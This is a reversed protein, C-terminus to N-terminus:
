MQSVIKKSLGLLACFCCGFVDWLLRAPPKSCTITGKVKPFSGIQSINKLHTTWGGGSAERRKRRHAPPTTNSWPGWSNSALDSWRYCRPTKIVQSAPTTQLLNSLCSKYFSIHHINNINYIYIIYVCSIYLIHINPIYSPFNQDSTLSPILIYPSSSQNRQPFGKSTIVRSLKRPLPQHYHTQM